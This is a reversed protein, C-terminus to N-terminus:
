IEVEGGSNELDIQINDDCCNSSTKCKLKYMRWAMIMILFSVSGELTYKTYDEM